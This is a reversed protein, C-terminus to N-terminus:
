VNQGGLEKIVRYEQRPKAEDLSKCNVLMDKIWVTHGSAYHRLHGRRLHPVPSAHHGRAETNRVAVYYKEANVYTIYPLPPKGHSARKEQLKRSPVEVRVETGRTAIMLSLPWILHHVDGVIRSQNGMQICTGDQLAAVHVRGSIEGTYRYIVCQYPLKLYGRNHLDAARDNEKILRAEDVDGFDFVQAHLIEAALREIGQAPHKKHLDLLEDRWEVLTQPLKEAPLTADIPMRRFECMIEGTAPFNSKAYVQFRDEDKLSVGAKYASELVKETVGKPVMKHDATTTLWEAGSLSRHYTLTIKDGVKM